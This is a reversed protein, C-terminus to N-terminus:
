AFRRKLEEKAYMELIKHCYSGFDAYCNSAKDRCEIYKLYWAYPCQEFLTLSSFSFTMNDLIFEYESM